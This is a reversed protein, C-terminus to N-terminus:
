KVLRRREVEKMRFYICEVHREPHLCWRELSVADCVDRAAASHIIGCEFHTENQIVHPCRREAEKWMSLAISM